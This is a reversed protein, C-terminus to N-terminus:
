NEDDFPEDDDDHNFRNPSGYPRIEIEGICHELEKKAAMVNESAEVINRLQNELRRVKDRLDDREKILNEASGLMQKIAGAATNKRTHKKLFEIGDREILTMDRLEIRPTSMAKKIVAKKASPLIVALGKKSKKTAM